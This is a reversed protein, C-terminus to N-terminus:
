RDGLHGATARIAQAAINQARPEGPTWSRVLCCLLYEEDAVSFGGVAWSDDGEDRGSQATGTKLMPKYRSVPAMSGAATGWVAVARLDERMARVVSTDFVPQPEPYAILRGNQKRVLRWTPTGGHLVATYMSLLSFPSVTIGQGIFSLARTETGPAASSWPLAAPECRVGSFVPAALGSAHAHGVLSTGDLEANESLKYFFSNCSKALAATYTDMEGHAAHCRIPRGFQRSVGTCEVAPPRIGKQRAVAVLLPKITSGPTIVWNWPNSLAPVGTKKSVESLHAAYDRESMRTMDASPNQVVALVEGDPRAIIISGWINSEVLLAHLRRSLEADVTAVISPPPGVWWGQWSLLPWGPTRDPLDVLRQQWILGDRVHNGGILPGLSDGYSYVRTTRATGDSRIDPHVSTLERGERDVIPPCVREPRGLRLIELAQPDHLALDDPGGSSSILKWTAASFALAFVILVIDMTLRSPQRVALPEAETARM